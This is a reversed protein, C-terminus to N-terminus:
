RTSGDQPFAPGQRTYVPVPEAGLQKRVQERLVDPHFMAQWLTPTDDLQRGLVFDALAILPPLEALGRRGMERFTLPYATDKSDGALKGTADEIFDRLRT